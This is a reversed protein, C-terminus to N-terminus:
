RVVKGFSANLCDEWERLLTEDDDLDDLAERATVRQIEDGEGIFIEDDLSREGEDGYIARVEEALVDDYATAEDVARQAEAGGLRAEGAARQTAASMAEPELPRASIDELGARVNANSLQEVNLGLEDLTTRVQEVNEQIARFDELEEADPQRLVPQGRNIDQDLADLLERPEPTGRGVEEGRAVDEATGTGTAKRGIFGREQAFDAAAELTMGARNNILGPRSRPTLGLGRTLEGGEDRIGGARIMATSLREAKPRRPPRRLLELTDDLNGEGILARAMEIQERGAEVESLEDLAERHVQRGATFADDVTEIDDSLRGVETEDLQPRRAERSLVSDPADDLRLAPGEARLSQQATSVRRAHERSAPISIDFPTEEQIDAMREMFREAAQQETNKARVRRSLRTLRRAGFSAGHLAGRFIGGGAAALAVNTAAQSLGAPLGAEARFEQVFPQVGIEAGGAIGAEILMGRLIGTAAPAGAFMSLLIPPDTSIGAMSGAIQGVDGFFGARRATDENREVAEVAISMAEGRVQEPAKPEVGLERVQKAFRREREELPVHTTVGGEALLSQPQDVPNEPEKGTQRRIDEVYRDYAEVLAHHAAVTTQSLQASRFSAQVNELFGTPSGPAIFRSARSVAEREDFLPM